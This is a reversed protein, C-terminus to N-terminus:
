GWSVTYKAKADPTRDTCIEFKLEENECLLIFYEVSERPLIDEDLEIYNYGNDAVQFALKKVLIFADRAKDRDEVSGYKNYALVRGRLQNALSEM